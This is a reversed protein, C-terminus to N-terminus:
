KLNFPDLDGLFDLNKANSAKQPLLVPIGTALPSLPPTLVSGIGLSNSGIGSSRKGTDFGGHNKEAHKISHEEAFVSSHKAIDTSFGRLAAYPDEATKLSTTNQATINIPTIPTFTAFQTQQFTPQTYATQFNTQQFAPQTHATQFNAFLDSQTPALTTQAFGVSSGNSNTSSTMPGFDAFFENSKPRTQSNPPLPPPLAALTSTSGSFNSFNITQPNSNFTPTPAKASPLNSFNAFNAFSPAPQPGDSKSTVFDGFFNQSDLLSDKPPSKSAPVALTIGMKIESPVIKELTVSTSRPTPSFSKQDITDKYWRKQEYKFRMFDRVGVTDNVDPIPFIKNSWKAMWLEKARANGGNSIFEIEQPTFLSAYVSKVRHGFERILGGCRACCFTSITVDVYSPSQSDVNLPIVPFIALVFRQRVILVLRIQLPYSFVCNVLIGVKNDERLLLEKLIKLHAEEQKKNSASM